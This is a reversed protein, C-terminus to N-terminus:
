TTACPWSAASSDDGTHVGKPWCAMEGIARALVNFKAQEIAINAADWRKQNGSDIAALRDDLATMLSNLGHELEVEFREYEVPVPNSTLYARLQAASTQVSATQERCSPAHSQCGANSANIAGRLADWDASLSTLYVQSTTKGCVFRMYGASDESGIAAKPWCSVAVSFPYVVNLKVDFLHGANKQYDAFDNRDLDGLMADVTSMLEALAASLVVRHNAVGAPM